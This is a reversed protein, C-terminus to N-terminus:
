RSSKLSSLLGNVVADALGGDLVSDNCTELRLADVKELASFVAGAALWLLM